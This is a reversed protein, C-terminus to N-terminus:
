AGEILGVGNGWPDVVTAVKIGGGVDAVAYLVAEFIQYKLNDDKYIGFLM